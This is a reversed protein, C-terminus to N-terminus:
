QLIFKLFKQQKILHNYDVLKKYEEGQQKDLNFLHSEISFISRECLNLQKIFFSEKFGTNLLKKAKILFEKEKILKKTEKKTLEDTFKHENIQQSYIKISEIKKDIEKITIM